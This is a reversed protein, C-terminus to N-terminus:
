FSNKKVTEVEGCYLSNLQHFHHKDMSSIKCCKTLIRLICDVALIRMDIEDNLLWKNLSEGQFRCPSVYCLARPLGDSKIFLNCMFLM